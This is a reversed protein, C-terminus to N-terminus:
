SVKRSKFVIEDFVQYLPKDGNSTIITNSAFAPTTKPAKSKLPAAKTTANSILKYNTRNINTFRNLHFQKSLLSRLSNMKLLFASLCYCTLQYISLKPSSAQRWLLRSQGLGLRFDNARLCALFDVKNIKNILSKYFNLREDGSRNNKYSDWETDSGFIFEIEGKSIECGRKSGKDDSILIFM